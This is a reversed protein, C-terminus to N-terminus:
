GCGTLCVKDHKDAM